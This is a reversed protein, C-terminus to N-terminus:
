LDETIAEDLSKKPRDRGRKGEPINILECKRVPATESRRKVHGFWRLRTERLKNEIPAVKVLNRIVVNRIRDISSFGCMWRIMKMETVMLRQIQTKKLLWCESGYLVAPGVVMRYVKDKLELPVKKDCLV